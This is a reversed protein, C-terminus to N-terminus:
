RGPNASLTYAKLALYADHAKGTELTIGGKSSGHCLGTATCGAPGDLIAFV